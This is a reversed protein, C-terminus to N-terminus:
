WRVRRGRLKRCEEGNFYKVCLRCMENSGKFGRGWLPCRGVVDMVYYSSCLEFFQCEDCDGRGFRGFCEKLM